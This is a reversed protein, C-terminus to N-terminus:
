HIPRTPAYWKAPAQQRGAGQLPPLSRHETMPSFKAALTLWFWSTQQWLVHSCRLLLKGSIAHQIERYRKYVEQCVPAEQIKTDQSAERLSSHVSALTLTTPGMRATSFFCSRLEGLSSTLYLTALSLEISALARINSMSDYVHQCCM